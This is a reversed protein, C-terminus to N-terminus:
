LVKKIFKICESTYKIENRKAQREYPHTSYSYTNFYEWYKKMSQLYHSYEHIITSVVDELTKCNINYLVIRNEESYYSGMTFQETEDKRFYVRVSMKPQCKRRNNIGMNERCWRMAVIAYRRKLEIDVIKKTM